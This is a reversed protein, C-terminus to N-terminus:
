SCVALRRQAPLRSRCLGRYWHLGTNGWAGSARAPRLSLRFVIGPLLQTQVKPDPGELPGAPGAQELLDLFEDFSVRGDTGAKVETATDMVRVVDDACPWFVCTCPAQHMTRCRLDFPTDTM